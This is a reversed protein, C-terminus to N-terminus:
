LGYPAGIEQVFLVRVTPDELRLPQAQRRPRVVLCRAVSQLRRDLHALDSANAAVFVSPAASAQPWPLPDPHATKIM